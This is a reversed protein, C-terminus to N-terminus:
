NGRLKWYMGSFATLSHAPEGPILLNLDPNNWSDELDYGLRSIQEVFQTRNSIRYPSFATGTSQLTVFTDGECVPLRNLLLHKPKSGMKELLEPLQEPIYQLSGSALVIEFGRGAAITSTFSLAAPSGEAKHIRLGSEAVEPLDYVLWRLGAPYPFYKQFAYFSIGVNGGFDILSACQEFARSLWFIVPYDSSQVVRHQEGYQYGSDDYHVPKTAPADREAEEFTRYVGRFLRRTGSARAFHQEYALRMVYRTLPLRQMAKLFSAIPRDVLAERASNKLGMNERKSFRGSSANYLPSQRRGM